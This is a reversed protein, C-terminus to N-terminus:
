VAGPQFAAAPRRTSGLTRWRQALPQAPAITAARWGATRLLAVTDSARATRGDDVVLGLRGHYSRGAQILGRVDPHRAVPENGPPTAVVAAFLGEGGGGRIRQLGTALSRVRSPGVEALRDLITSWPQVAPLRPDADTMLRLTFGDDALHWVLSAALSVAKEFGSGPGLHRHALQRTDVFITAEAEWPQEQQRIMLKNRHATSPWHVQRLDDGQVYERMTYFEDGTNFLRRTTSSGSGQQMGPAPPDALPEIYPYVIADDTSRYRRIRQALGFPDRVRLRMPGVTYRGRATGAVRYRIMTTRGAGLGPVVFRPPASLAPPCADEVLLLAAPLRADNRLELTVEGHGGALIRGPALHRRVSVNATSTRVAITACVVLAASAVAVIYLESVGLFRGLAWAVVAAILLLAGRRTIV